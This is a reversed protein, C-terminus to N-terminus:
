AISEATIAVRNTIKDTITQYNILSLTYIVEIYKPTLTKKKRREKQKDLILLTM